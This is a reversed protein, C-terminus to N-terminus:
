QGEDQGEEWHNTRSDILLNREIGYERMWAEEKKKQSKKRNAYLRASALTAFFAQTDTHDKRISSRQCYMVFLEMMVSKPIVIPETDWGKFTTMDYEKVGETNYQAVGNEYLDYLFRVPAPASRIMDKKRQDSQGEPMVNLKIDSKYNLMFDLFSERGGNDIEVKLEEFYKVNGMMIDSVPLYVHRRETFEINAAHEENTAMMIKTYNKGKEKDVGKQEVVRFENVLSKMLNKNRPDGAFIAEDLFLFVNLGLHSNFRGILDDKNSTSIAHSGLLRCIVNDIVINKGAGQSSKLVLYPQGVKAPHQFLEALWSLTYKYISQVGSCWVNEIHWLIKECSKANDLNALFGMWQNYDGGQQIVPKCGCGRFIENNPKFVVNQYTNRSVNLEWDDFVGVSKEGKIIRDNKFVSKYESIAIFKTDWECLDKSYVESIVRAKGGIMGMGFKSNLKVIHDENIVEAREELLKEEQEEKLRRLEAPVGRRDDGYSSGPGKQKNKDAIAQGITKVETNTLRHMEGENKFVYDIFGDLEDQDEEEEITLLISEMDWILHYEVDGYFSFIHMTENDNVRVYAIGQGVIGRNKDGRKYPNVPDPLSRNNWVEPNELLEKIQVQNGNTDLIWDNAGLYDHLIGNNDEWQDTKIGKAREARISRKSKEARREARKVSGAERQVRSKEMTVPDNKLEAIKLRLLVKDEDSLSIESLSKSLNLLEGEEFDILDLRRSELGECCVPNAEFIERNPANWVAKDIPGHLRKAGSDRVVKIKGMDRLILHDFITDCYEPILTGEDVEVWIHFSRKESIELGTETDFLMCSSSYLGVMGVERLSPDISCLLEVGDEMSGDFGDFDFYFFASNEPWSFWETTRQVDDENALRRSKIEYKVDGAPEVIGNSICQHQNMGRILDPLESLPIDLTQGHGDQLHETMAKKLDLSTFEKVIRNTKDTLLTLKGM